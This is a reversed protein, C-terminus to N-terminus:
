RGQLHDNCKGQPHEIWIDCYHFVILRSTGRVMTNVGLAPFGGGVYLGARWPAFSGTRTGPKFIEM